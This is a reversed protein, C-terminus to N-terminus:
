PSGDAYRVDIADAKITAIVRTGRTFYIEESEAEAGDPYRVRFTMGAEGSVTFGYSSMPGINGIEKEGYAWEAVVFVPQTTENVVEFAPDLFHPIALLVLVIFFFAAIVFLTNVIRQIM